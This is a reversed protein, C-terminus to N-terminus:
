NNNIQTAENYIIEHYDAIEKLGAKKLPEISDYIAQLLKPSKSILLANYYAEEIDNTGCLVDYCFVDAVCFLGSSITIQESIQCRSVEWNGETGKFKM